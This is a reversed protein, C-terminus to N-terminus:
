TQVGMVEGRRILRLLRRAKELNPSKRSNEELIELAIEIEAQARGLHHEVRDEVTTGGRPYSDWGCQAM